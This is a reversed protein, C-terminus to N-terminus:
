NQGNNGGEIPLLYLCFPVAGAVLVCGIVGLAEQMVQFIDPM